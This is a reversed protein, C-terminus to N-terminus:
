AQRLRSMRQRLSGEFAAGYCRINSSNGGGLRVNRSKLGLKEEVDFHIESITRPKIAELIPDWKNGRLELIKGVMFRMKSTTHGSNSIKELLVFYSGLFGHSKLNEELQKGVTNFVLFVPM